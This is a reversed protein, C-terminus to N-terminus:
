QKQKNEGRELLRLDTLSRRNAMDLGGCFVRLSQSPLLSKFPKETPRGPSGPSPSGLAEESTRPVEPLCLVELLRQSALTGASISALLM